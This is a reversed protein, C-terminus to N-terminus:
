DVTEKEVLEIETTMKCEMQLQLRQQTFQSNM